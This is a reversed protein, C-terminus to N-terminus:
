ASRRRRQYALGVLGMSMLVMTAPEPIPVGPFNPESQSTGYQFSVNLIDDITLGSFGIINFTFVVSDQIFPNSGQLAPNEGPGIISVIGYNM